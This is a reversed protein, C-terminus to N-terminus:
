ISKLSEKLFLLSEERIRSLRIDVESYDIETDIDMINNNYIHERGIGLNEFLSDIRSNRGHKNSNKFRYFTMFQRHFLISFVSCHFSDTCVYKAESIFKVFDIPDVNYPAEDGFFEDAPVYEDMHRITIIKMGTKQKLEVVARRADENVGLFYCFIYPEVVNVKSDQIEMEWENRTLLLTPDAVVQAKQHSLSEVIEKGRNERVGVSQFRDLYAGTQKKQFDPIESVGFSSAYSIKPVSDDVFLLNYFKSYLGIPLWVQDSGVLIADFEKSGDQLNKYGEYEKVFPEFKKEKYADVSKTRQVIGKAYNPYRKMNWVQKWHRIIGPKGAGRLMWYATKFKDWLSIHRKYRILVCDYGLDQLTKLTAFGQLSTGYNNHGKRYAIVCGIRKVM